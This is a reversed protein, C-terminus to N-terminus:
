IKMVEKLLYITSHHYCRERSFQVCTTIQSIPLSYNDKHASSNNYQEVCGHQQDRSIIFTNGGFNFHILM